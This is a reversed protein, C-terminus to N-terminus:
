DRRRSWNRHGPQARCLQLGFRGQLPRRDRRRGLGREPPIVAEQPPHILRARQGGEVTRVEECAEDALLPLIQSHGTADGTGLAHERSQALPAGEAALRGDKLGATSRDPDLQRACWEPAAIRRERAEAPEPQNSGKRLV